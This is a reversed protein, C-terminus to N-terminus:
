AREGGAQLALVVTRVPLGVVDGCPGGAASQIQRPGDWNPRPARPSSVGLQRARLPFCDFIRSEAAGRYRQGGTMWQDRGSRVFRGDPARGSAARSARLGDRLVIRHLDSVDSVWTQAAQKQSQIQRPGDWNPRPARPSSVGLQRARLPFCDFIRSEAAGRYRQGGTMWQDRGSRVFRGDPARGSAARSARLGDRLVIRHLDSVDSVWLSSGRPTGGAVTSLTRFINAKRWSM